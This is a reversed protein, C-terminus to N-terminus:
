LLSRPVPAFIHFRGIDAPLRARIAGEELDRATVAARARYIIQRGIRFTVANGPGLCFASLVLFRSSLM